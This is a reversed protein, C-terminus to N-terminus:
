PKQANRAILVDQKLAFRRYIRSRRVREEAGRATDGRYGGLFLLRRGTSASTLENPSASNM